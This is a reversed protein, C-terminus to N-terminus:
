NTRQFYSEAEIVGILNSYDEGAQSIEIGIIKMSRPMIEVTKVFVLIDYYSGQIVLNTQIIGINSDKEIVEEFNISQIETDAYQSINYFENTLAQVNSGSPLETLYKQYQAYLSN